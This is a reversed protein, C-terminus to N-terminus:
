PSEGPETRPKAWNTWSGTVGSEPGALLDGRQGPDRQELADNLDATSARTPSTTATRDLGLGPRDGPLRRDIRAERVHPKDLERAVYRAVFRRLEGEVGAVRQLVSARLGKAKCSSRCRARRDAAHGRHLDARRQAGRRHADAAGAARGRVAADRGPPRGRLHPGRAAARPLRDRDGRLRTAIARASRATRGSRPSGARARRGDPRLRDAPRRHHQGGRPRAGRQDGRPLLRDGWQEYTIEATSPHRTAPWRHRGLGRPRRPHDDASSPPTGSVWRGVVRRITQQLQYSDDVGESVAKDLAAIIPDKIEEFTTDDEAFGAPTSRRARQGGQRDPLRDGRDGLHLGGRRPDPPGEPLERHHRRDLQRRRLRLRLRGQRHGQRAGDVLDVVM